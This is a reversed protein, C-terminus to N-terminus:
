EDSDFWGLARSSQSTNYVTTFTNLTTQNIWSDTPSAFMLKSLLRYVDHGTSFFGAHGSVGGMAYANGDEVRGQITAHRYFTDNLTPAATGWLLPNILFGSSSMGAHGIVYKHVYALFYCQQIGDNTVDFEDESQDSSGSLCADKMENVNVYGLDRALGGVVYMMTIMSLDSYLFVDGVPNILTQNLVAAYIRSQCDFDEPPFYKFSSACGFSTNWYGPTPDPPFGANHLLLNRVTITEKGNVGFAPGLLQESAVYWDLSLEGRQYFTMVASTTMLVKTLSAM